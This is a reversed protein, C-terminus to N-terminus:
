VGAVMEAALFNLFNRPLHSSIDKIIKIFIVVVFDQKMGSWLNVQEPFCGLVLAVLDSSLLFGESQLEWRSLGWLLESWERSCCIDFESNIDHVMLWWCWPLYWCSKCSYSVVLFYNLKLHGVCCHQSLLLRLPYHYFTSFLPLPTNWVNFNNESNILEGAWFQINDSSWFCCTSPNLPCQM